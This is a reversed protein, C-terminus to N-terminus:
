RAVVELTDPEFTFLIYTWFAFPNGRQRTTTDIAHQYWWTCSTAVAALSSDVCECMLIFALSFDITWSHQWNHCFRGVIFSIFLLIFDTFTMRNGWLWVRRWPLSSQGCAFLFACFVSSGLHRHALARNAHVSCMADDCVIINYHNRVPWASLAIEHRKWESHLCPAHHLSQSHGWVRIM